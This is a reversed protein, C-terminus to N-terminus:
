TLGAEVANTLTAHLAMGAPPRLGHRDVLACQWDARAAGTGDEDPEDGILALRAPDAIGAAAAAAQFIEPAPKEFGIECSIAVVKALSLLNMEDLLPRLRGDFNSLFGIPVGRVRCLAFAAEVDPQLRWHDARGFAGYVDAFFADGPFPAAARRFTEVVVARWFDWAAAASSGYAAGPRAARQAKWAPRFAAELAEPAAHVGWRAAAEAYAVGVGPEPRILTFGVDFFVFDPPRAAPLPM